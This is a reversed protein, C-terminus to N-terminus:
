SQKQKIWLKSWALFSHFSMMLAAVFGETGDLLGGKIIWNNLFKLKPYFHIKFINSKKGEKLNAESHLSSHWNIDAIFENLTQHPYHLLPSTIRGIDGKIDWYEHVARKWKGAEKKALRLLSITGFEGHKLRKGWLNDQRKLLFGAYKLEPNNVAQIIESGLISSVQEDADIFLVWKGEAKQLGFNRQSAFDQDLKRLFVKAGTQKAIEATDDSSYDDIVIIEFCFKLNKICGAINEGENKTLIVASIDNTMEAKM